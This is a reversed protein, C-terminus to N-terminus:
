GASYHLGASVLNWRPGPEVDSQELQEPLAALVKARREAEKWNKDATFNDSM